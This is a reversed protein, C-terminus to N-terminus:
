GPTTALLTALDGHSPPDVKYLAILIIIAIPQPIVKSQAQIHQNTRRSDTMDKLM